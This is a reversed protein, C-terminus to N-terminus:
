ESGYPCTDGLLCQKCLGFVQAAKRNSIGKGDCPPTYETDSVREKELYLFNDLLPDQHITKALPVERNPNPVSQRPPRLTVDRHVGPDPAMPKKALLRACAGELLNELGEQDCTVRYSTKRNLAFSLASQLSSQDILKDGLPNLENQSIFPSLDLDRQYKTVQFARVWDSWHGGQTSLRNGLANLLSIPSHITKCWPKGHKYPRYATTMQNTRTLIFGVYETVRSSQISKEPSLQVGLKSMVGSYVLATPEDWIVIDDGTVQFKPQYLGVEVAPKTRYRRVIQKLKVEFMLDAPTDLEEQFLFEVALEPDNKLEYAAMCAIVLMIHSIHYLPFSSYLGMPQGCRYQLKEGRYKGTTFFVDQSCIEELADAFEDHGLGILTQIQLQRPFRDTASSADFAFVKSKGDLAAKVAWASKAQDHMGSHISLIRNNRIYSDLKKHLPQFLWQTLPAPVFVVRAKCGAEQICAIEGPDWSCDGEELLLNQLSVVEPPIFKRLSNPTYPNTALARVFKGYPQAGRFSRERAILNLDSNISTPQGVSGSCVSTFAKLKSLDPEDLDWDPDPIVTTVTTYFREQFSSLDCGNYPTDIAKRAKEYQSSTINRCRLATYLRLIVEIVRLVAPRQAKVYMGLVKGYIGRPLNTSKRYSISNQQYIEKALTPNGGRLQLGAVRLSKLRKCTWEVGNHDLWLNIQRIVQGSWPYTRRAVWEARMPLRNVTCM